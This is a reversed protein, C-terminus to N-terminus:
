ELTKRWCDPFRRDCVWKCFMRDTVYVIVCIHRLSGPWSACNNMVDQINKKFCEQICETYKEMMPPPCPDTCSAALGFSDTLSLPNEKVYGYTNIGGRLGIPDAEVYRGITPDYDRFYNYNLGTEGDAYQGPFRLNYGFTGLGNPNQNPANNGFADSNAWEWVKLNDSPRTIARPTGLHDPHVYYIDVAIPNSTSGAHPALTAVPLDDLWITEQILKGTQDYEGVFLM